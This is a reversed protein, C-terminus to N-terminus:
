AARKWAELLERERARSLGAPARDVGMERPPPHPEREAWALTDRATEALPRLRLGAALARTSDHSNFGAWEPNAAPALWFPLDAFPDVSASLLFEEDVWVFTADPGVADRIGTVLGEMTLPAAPGTANFVGVVRGEALRVIWDALDRADIVQVRQGRPEPVLAEGGAALRTVWYTFRNTPDYPGAIVTPRVNAVRGPMAAEAARESLAKFGGYSEASATTEPAGPALEHVPADEDTDLASADAYVSVSSVFTYHEVRDALLQATARVQRPFYGSTDVVADWRGRALASLDGDRDGELREVEPFLEPGRRGRTFISVEHGEALATEVVTRGVFVTGGLVLLRV